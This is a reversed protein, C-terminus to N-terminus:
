NTTTASTSSSTTKTPKIESKAKKVVPKAEPKVPVAPTIPSSEVNEVQTPTNFISKGSKLSALIAAITTNQPYKGALDDFITTANTVDNVRAFTLGLYYEANVYTVDVKLASQFASAATRYDGGNYSLVGAEFLADTYDPKLQLAASIDAVASSTSGHLYELRALSLYTAPNLPSLRIAHIYAAKSNEYANPVSIATAIESIDGEAIYNNVNAPDIAQGSRAYGIGENILAGITALASSSGTQTTSIISNIDFADIQALAQYYTDSKKFSLATNFSSRAGAIDGIISANVGSQFHKQAITDKVYVFLFGIACLLLIYLVILSARGAKAGESEGASWHIGHIEFVRMKAIHSHEHAQETALAAIFLGTMVMTIFLIAHSPNYLVLMTWLFFTAIYTTGLTARSMIAQPPNRMIRFGAVLLWVMLLIWLIFGILGENVLSTLLFSSGNPFTVNWFQTSNITKPKYLLYQEAFRDPGAGLVPSTKITSAAIDLTSQWPLSIEAYNVSLSTVLGSVIVQGKWVFGAAVIFIVIAFYPVKKTFSGEITRAVIIRYIAYFLTTLAIGVWILYLDVLAVSIFSVVCLGITISMLRRTTPLMKSINMELVFFSVIFVLASLIGLDYWSGVMTSTQSTFIGFSLLPYNFLGSIIRIFHFLAVLVFCGTIASLIVAIRERSRALLVTLFGGLLILMLFGGTYQDFTVGMFSNVASVSFLSAVVATVASLGGLIVVPHLPVSLKHGQIRSVCYLAFSILVGLAIILTKVAMFPLFAPSLFFVIALVITGVFVNFSAKEMKEM